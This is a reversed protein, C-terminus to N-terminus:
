PGITCVGARRKGEAGFYLNLLHSTADAKSCASFNSLVAAVAGTLAGGFGKIKQRQASTNVKIKLSPPAGASTSVFAHRALELRKGGKSSQWSVAGQTSNSLFASIQSRITKGPSWKTDGLSSKSVADFPELAPCKSITIRADSPDIVGKLSSRAIADTSVSSLLVILALASVVVHTSPASKM